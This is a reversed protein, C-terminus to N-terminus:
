LASVRPPYTRRSHIYWYVDAPAPVVNPIRFGPPRGVSKAKSGKPLRNIASRPPLIKLYKIVVGRLGCLGITKPDTGPLACLRAKSLAPLRSTTAPATSLVGNPVAAELAM